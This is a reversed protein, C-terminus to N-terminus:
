GNKLADISLLNDVREQFWMLQVSLDAVFQVPYSALYYFKREFDEKIIVESEEGPNKRHEPFMKGNIAVLSCVLRCTSLLEQTYLASGPFNFLYHLIWLNEKQSFTRLTVEFKKPIVPVTQQLERKMIMEGIDLPELRAEIIKKREPDLLTTRADEIAGFDIPPKSPGLEDEMEELEAKTEKAVQPSHKEGTEQEPTEGSPEDPESQQQEFNEKAMKLAQVSEESLGQGGQRTMKNGERLTVPRGETDGRSLAQNVAYAAGVGGGM